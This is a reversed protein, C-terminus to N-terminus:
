ETRRKFERAAQAADIMADKDGEMIALLDKLSDCHWKLIKEIIRLQLETKVKGGV